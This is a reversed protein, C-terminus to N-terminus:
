GHREGKCKFRLHIVGASDIVRTLELEIGGLHEFLRRGGGLLVPVLHVQIEDLLGAKLFQQVVNAGGAM